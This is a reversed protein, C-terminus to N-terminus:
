VGLLYVGALYTSGHQCRIINSVLFFCFKCMRIECLFTDAAPKIKLTELDRRHIAAVAGCVDQAVGM